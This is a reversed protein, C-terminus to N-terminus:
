LNIRNFVQATAGQKREVTQCKKMKGAADVDGIIRKKCVDYNQKDLISLEQQDTAQSIHLYAGRQKGQQWPHGAEEADM